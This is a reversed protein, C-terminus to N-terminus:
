YHYSAGDLPPGFHCAVKDIGSSEVQFCTTLAPAEGGYVRGPVMRVWARFEWVGWRGSMGLVSKPLLETEAQGRPENMGKTGGVVGGTFMGSKQDVPDAVCGQGACNCTSCVPATDIECCKGYGVLWKHMNNQGGAKSAVWTGAM